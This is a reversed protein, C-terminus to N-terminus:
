NRPYDIYMRAHSAVLPAPTHSVHRLPNSRNRSRSGGSHSLTRSFNIHTRAHHPLLPPPNCPVHRGANCLNRRRSGGSHHLTRPMGRRDITQQLCAFLICVTSMTCRRGALSSGGWGRVRGPTGPNGELNSRQRAFRLSM